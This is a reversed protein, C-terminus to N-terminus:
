SFPEEPSNFDAERDSEGMPGWLGLELELGLSFLCIEARAWLQEKAIPLHGWM